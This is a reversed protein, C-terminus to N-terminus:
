QVGTIKPYLPRASFNNLVLLYLQERYFDITMMKINEAEWIAGGPRPSEAQFCGPNMGGVRAEGPPPLALLLARLHAKVRSRPESSWAGGGHSM